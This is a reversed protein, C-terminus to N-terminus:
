NFILSGIRIQTSGKSIALRYDNSMGMSLVFNGRDCLLKCEPSCEALRDRISVLRDFCDGTDDGITMLGTFVLGQSNLVAKVLALILDFQRYDLGFQTPKLSTNVQVLVFLTRSPERSMLDSLKLALDISDLSELMHLNPVRLLLSCKNTQLHGIFHWKIDSSLSSAKEFLDQVRNEGFHVQGNSHLLAISEVPANKSVVLLSVGSFPRIYSVISKWRTLLECM